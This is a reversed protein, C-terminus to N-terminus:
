LAGRVTLEDGAQKQIQEVDHTPASHQSQQSGVEVVEAEGENSQHDQSVQAEGRTEEPSIAALVQPCGTGPDEQGIGEDGPVSDLDNPSLLGPLQESPKIFHVAQHEQQHHTHPGQDGTEAQDGQSVEDM